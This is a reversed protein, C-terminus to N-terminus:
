NIGLKELLGRLYRVSGGIGSEYTHGAPPTGCDIEIIWPLNQPDPAYKVLFYVVTAIDIDGEGVVAPSLNLPTGDYPRSTSDKIHTSRVFPAIIQVADVPEERVCLCNGSDFKARVNPSNVMDIIRLIERAQYDVHNEICITVGYSEAVPALKKIAASVRHLQEELPPDKVWRHMGLPVAATALTKIGMPIFVKKCLEEFRDTTQKDANEMYKDGFGSEIEIGYKEMLKQVKAMRGPDDLLNAVGTDVITMGYHHAEELIDEITDHHEFDFSIMGIKM